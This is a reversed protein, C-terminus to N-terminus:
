ELETFDDLSARRIKVDYNKHHSIASKVGRTTFYARTFVTSTKPRTFTVLYVWPPEGDCETQTKAM